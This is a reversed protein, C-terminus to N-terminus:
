PDEGVFFRYFARHDEATWPIRVRKQLLITKWQATTFERRYRKSHMAEAYYQYLLGGRKFRYKSLRSKCDEIAKKRDAETYCRPRSHAKPQDCCCCCDSSWAWQSIFLTLFLSLLRM